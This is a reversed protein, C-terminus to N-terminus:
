EFVGALVSRRVVFFTGDLEWAGSCLKPVFSGDVEWDAM